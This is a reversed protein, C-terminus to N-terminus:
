VGGEGHAVMEKVMGRRATETWRESGAAGRRERFGGCRSSALRPAYRQGVGGGSRSAALRLAAFRPRSLRSLISYPLAEPTEERWPRPVALRFLQSSVESRSPM